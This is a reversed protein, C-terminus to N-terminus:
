SSSAAQSFQTTRTEIKTENFWKYPTQGAVKFYIIMNVMHTVLLAAAIGLAWSFERYHLHAELSYLVFGVVITWIAMLSFAKLSKM